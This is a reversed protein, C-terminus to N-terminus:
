SFLNNAQSIINLKTCDTEEEQDIQLFNLNNSEYFIIKFM